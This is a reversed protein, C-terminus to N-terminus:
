GSLNSRQTAIKPRRGMPITPRLMQGRSPLTAVSRFLFEKARQSKFIPRSRESPPPKVSTFPQISSRHAHKVLPPARETQATRRQSILASGMTQFYGRCPHIPPIKSPKQHSIPQVVSTHRREVSSRFRFQGCLARKWRVFCRPRRPLLNEGASPRPRGWKLLM